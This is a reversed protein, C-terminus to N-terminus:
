RSGSWSLALQRRDGLQDFSSPQATAAVDDDFWTVIDGHRDYALPRTGYHRRARPLTKNM